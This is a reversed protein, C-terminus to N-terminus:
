RPARSIQEDGRIVGLDFQPQHRVEAFIRQQHAGKGLSLVNMGQGSDSTNPMAASPISLCVRSRALATLKPM